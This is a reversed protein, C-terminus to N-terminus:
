RRRHHLVGALGLFLLSLLYCISIVWVLPHLHLLHAYLSHGDGTQLDNGLSSSNVAKGSASAPSSTLTGPVSTGAPSATPTIGATPSPPAPTPTPRAATPTPPLPTQTPPLPTPRVPPAPTGRPGPNYSGPTVATPAISISVTAQQGNDMERALIQHSGTSWNTGQGLWLNVTFRGATDAQTKAPGGHQDLLPWRGDLWFTIQSAPHFGQGLLRLETGSPLTASGALELRMRVTVAPTAIGSSGPTSSRPFIGRAQTPPLLVSLVIALLFLFTIGFLLVSGALWLLFEIHGPRLLWWRTRDLPSFHRVASSRRASRAVSFRPSQRTPSRSGAAWSAADVRVVKQEPVLPQLARSGGEPVTDIEDISAFAAPPLAISPFLARGPDELDAFIQALTGPTDQPAAQVERTDSKQPVTDIEDIHPLREGSHPQRTTTRPPATPTESIILSLSSLSSVAEYSPSNHQLGRAQRPSPSSFPAPQSSVSRGAAGQSRLASARAPIPTIPGSQGVARTHGPVSTSRAPEHATFGCSACINSGAALPHSCLPCCDPDTANTLWTDTQMEKEKARLPTARTQCAARMRCLFPACCVLAGDPENEIRALGREDWIFAHICAKQVPCAIIHIFGCDQSFKEVRRADEQPFSRHGCSSGSRTRRYPFADLTGRSIPVSIAYLPHYPPHLGSQRNRLDPNAQM